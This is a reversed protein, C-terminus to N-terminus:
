AIAIAGDVGPVAMAMGFEVIEVVVYDAAGPESHCHTKRAEVDVVWYAPIGARAYDLRKRGLDEALTAHAIEVVLVIDSPLLHRRDGAIDAALAIDPSRVTTDSLRVITDIYTELGLARALATLDFSIRALLKGHESHSPAMEVLEGEVLEVHADGFGGAVILRLYDGSSM